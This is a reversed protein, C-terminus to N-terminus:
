LVCALIIIVITIVVAVGAFIINKINRQWFTKKLGAASRRMNVTVMQLQEVEAYLQNLKEGRMLLLEVCEALREKAQGIDGKIGDFRNMESVAFESM